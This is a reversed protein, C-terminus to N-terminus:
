PALTHLRCWGRPLPLARVTTHLVHEGWVLSTAVRGQEVADLALVRLTRLPVQPARVLLEAGVLEALGCTVGTRQAGDTVRLVVRDLGDPAGAAFLPLLEDAPGIELEWLADRVLPVDDIADLAALMLVGRAQKRRAPGARDGPRMTWAGDRQEIVADVVEGQWPLVRDLGVLWPDEEVLAM